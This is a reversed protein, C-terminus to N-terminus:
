VKAGLYDFRLGKLLRFAERVVYNTTTVQFRFKLTEYFFLFCRYDAIYNNNSLVSLLILMREELIWHDSFTASHLFFTWAPSWVPRDM